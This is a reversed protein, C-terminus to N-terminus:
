DTLMLPVAVATTGTTRNVGFASVNKLVDTPVALVTLTTVRLFVPLATRSMVEPPILIVPASAVDNVLVVVQPVVTAGAVLQVIEMVKLGLAVPGAVAESVTVSLAAVEGCATLRFPVPFYHRKNFALNRSDGLQFCRRGFKAPFYQRQRKRHCGSKLGIFSQGFAYDRGHGRGPPGSCHSHEPVRPAPM